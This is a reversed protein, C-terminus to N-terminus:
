IHCPSLFIYKEGRPMIYLIYSAKSVIYYLITNYYITDGRNFYPYFITPYVEWVIQNTEESVAVLEVVDLEKLRGLETILRRNRIAASGKSM